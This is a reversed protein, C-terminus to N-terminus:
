SARSQRHHRYSRQRGRRHTHTHTHTHARACYSTYICMYVHICARVCVYVTEEAIGTFDFSLAIEKLEDVTYGCAVAVALVCGGSVGAARKVWRLDQGTDGFSRALIGLAPPFALVKECVCVCLSLSLSLSPCVSPCVYIHIHLGTPSAQHQHLPANMWLDMSALTGRKVWLDMSAITGIKMCVCVCRCRCRCRSDCRCRCRCRCVCTRFARVKVGGGSFVLNEWEPPGKRRM